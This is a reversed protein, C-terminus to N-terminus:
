FLYFVWSSSTMEFSGGPARYLLLRTWRPTLEVVAPDLCDYNALSRSPFCYIICIHVPSFRVYYSMAEGTHTRAPRHITLLRDNPAWLALGTALKNEMSGVSMTCANNTRQRQSYFAAWPVPTAIWLKWPVEHFRSSPPRIHTRLIDQKRCCVGSPMRHEYEYATSRLSVPLRYLDTFPNCM